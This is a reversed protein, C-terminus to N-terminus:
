WYAASYTLGRTAAYDMYKITMTKLPRIVGQLAIYSSAGLRFVSGDLKRACCNPMHGIQVCIWGVETCLLKVHTSWDSCLDMWSGDVAIQCTHGIQVCIWGVETCLLKAYTGLRFVSGDLKRACCNSMHGIQVCIWGVETCLLKVHTSWDSCLDMWSGDVAIQCTHGIQVCIWGVETCLLKAYTGLRFVSGDLKWACCNSMHGIQVCIWGVETCLLKVHAWDSCLDMWSGHVAIQCTGLRFVSGDLKRACCNSM